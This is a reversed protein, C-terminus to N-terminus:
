RQQGSIGVLLKSTEEGCEEEDWSHVKFPNIVRVMLVSPKLSACLLALISITLRGLKPDPCNRIM